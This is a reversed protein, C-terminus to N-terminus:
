QRRFPMTNNSPQLAYNLIRGQDAPQQKPILILCKISWFINSGNVRIHIHWHWVTSPVAEEYKGLNYSIEAFGTLFEAQTPAFNDWNIVYNKGFYEYRLPFDASIFATIDKEIEKMVEYSKANQGKMGLVFGYEYKFNNKFYRSAKIQDANGERIVKDLLAVGKDMRTKVDDINSQTITKSDFGGQYERLANYIEVASQLNETPTQAQRFHSCSYHAAQWNKVM